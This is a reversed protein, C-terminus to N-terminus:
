VLGSSRSWGTARTEQRTPLGQRATAHFTNEPPLPDDPPSAAPSLLTSPERRRCFPEWKTSARDAATGDLSGSRLVIVTKERSPRSRTLLHQGASTRRHDQSSFHPPFFRHASCSCGHRALFTDLMALCALTCPPCNISSLLFWRTVCARTSLMFARALESSM